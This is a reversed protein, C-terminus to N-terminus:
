LDNRLLSCTAPDFLIRIPFAFRRGEFRIADLVLKTIERTRSTRRDIGRIKRSVATTATSLSTVIVSPRASRTARRATTSVPITRTRIIERHRHLRNRHAPFLFIALRAWAVVDSQDVLDTIITLHVMNDTNLDMNIKRPLAILRTTTNPRSSTILAAAAEKPHYEHIAAM